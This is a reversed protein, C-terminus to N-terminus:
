DAFSAILLVNDGIVYNPMHNNGSLLRIGILVILVVGVNYNWEIFDM